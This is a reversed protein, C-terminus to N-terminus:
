ECLAAAPVSCGGYIHEKSQNLAQRIYENFSEANSVSAPFVGLGVWFLIAKKMKM